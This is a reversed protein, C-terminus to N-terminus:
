THVPWMPVKVAFATLFALFILIQPTMGLKLDHYALIDFSGNSQFYMYILAVLMLVSGFFTYLFFKITAYVRNAGGWIGIIVFMPILMAEWFVYFLMADLASFVGVMVGEMLLFAAMYQHPKYQIVEWGAIVVLITIFTTLLILPMSIGDVGLYYEIGFGPVWPAREVFQMQATSIDFGSWLPLSVLFTLVAVVLAIWRSVNPAKDGSALVMFGGVIPLWITFSLIPWDAIM